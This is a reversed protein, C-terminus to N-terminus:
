IASVVLPGSGYQKSNGRSNISAEKESTIQGYQNARDDRTFICAEYLCGMLYYDPDSALLFNSTNSDSLAPITAFYSIEIESGAASPAFQFEDGVLTYYRAKGTTLAMADIKQPPAYELLFPPTSNLQINRLELFDSPLAVYEGTPTSTARKEMEPIRLNRNARAEFLDIFTDIQATLNGRHLWAAIQTKLESYTM